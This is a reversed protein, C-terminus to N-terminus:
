GEGNTTVEPHPTMKNRLTNSKAVIFKITAANPINSVFTTENLPVGINNWIVVIKELRPFSKQNYHMLFQKLLDNRKYTMVVITYKESTTFVNWKLKLVEQKVIHVKTPSDETERDENPLDPALDVGVDSGKGANVVSSSCNADKRLAFFLAVVLCLGLIGYIFVGKKMESARLSYM